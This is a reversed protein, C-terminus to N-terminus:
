NQEALKLVEAAIDDAANIKAMKKINESLNASLATDRTLEIALPVLKTETETDKVLKAAEIAELARANKTQHDEAVNPSPVLIVPKGVICLESITGAGARSIIVDAVKFAMDMRSIFDFLKLPLGPKTDVVAKVEKYYFKGCQFIFQIDPSKEIMELASIIGKNISKAGGSGGLVLVTKRNEDLNFYQIAEEHTAKIDILNKRVPNGTMLIKDKPFYTDMSDYAVCIKNVKGSLLRNTIGPYSNQEQILAPIGKRAAMKLVPGSAYGGVGVVVDPKFTNLISKSKLLSIFLKWFFSINKLTLKRQFGQVPLGIIRFGEEPVKQMELKGKAGIFLIETEPERSVIAHAVSVAPFVHGGTGGGSIIIKKNKM